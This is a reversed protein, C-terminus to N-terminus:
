LDMGHVRGVIDAIKKQNDNQNPRQHLLMVGAAVSSLGGQLALGIALSAAGLVALISTTQVGVRQLVAIGGVIIITYRVLSSVFGLLVADPGQKGHLRSLAERALRSAWGAAWFTAVLIGAAVALNLLGHLVSALIPAWAGPGGTIVHQIQQELPLPPAATAAAAKAPATTM